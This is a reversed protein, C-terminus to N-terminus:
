NAFSGHSVPDLVWPLTCFSIYEVQTHLEKQLSKAQKKQFEKYQQLDAHSDLSSRTLTQVKEQLSRQLAAAQQLAKADACSAIQEELQLWLTM